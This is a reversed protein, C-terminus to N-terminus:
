QQFTLPLLSQQTLHQMGEWWCSGQCPFLVLTLPCTLDQSKYKCSSGCANNAPHQPISKLNSRGHSALGADAGHKGEAGQVCLLEEGAVDLTSHQLSALQYAEEHTVQLVQVDEMLNVIGIIGAASPRQQSLGCFCLHSARM